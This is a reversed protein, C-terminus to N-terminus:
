RLENSCIQRAKLYLRGGGKNIKNMHKLPLNMMLLDTIM